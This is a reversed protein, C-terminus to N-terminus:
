PLLVFMNFVQGTGASPWGCMQWNVQSVVESRAWGPRANTVPAQTITAAPLSPLLWHYLPVWAVSPLTVASWTREAACCDSLLLGPERQCHSSCKLTERWASEKHSADHYLPLPPPKLAVPVQAWIGAWSNSATHNWAFLKVERIKLNRKWFTSILFFFFKIVPNSMGLVFVTKLRWKYWIQDLWHSYTGELILCACASSHFPMVQFLALSRQGHPEGPLVALAPQWERRRPIKGVWSWVQTQMALPNKVM